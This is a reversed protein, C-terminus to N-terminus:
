ITSSLKNPHITTTSTPTYTCTCSYHFHGRGAVPDRTNSSQEGWDAITCRDKTKAEKWDRSECMRSWAGPLGEMRLKTESAFFSESTKGSGKSRFSQPKSGKQQETSPRVLCHGFALQVWSHKSSGSAAPAWLIHGLALGCWFFNALYYLLLM